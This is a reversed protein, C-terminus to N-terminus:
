YYYKVRIKCGYYKDNDGGYISFSQIEYKKKCNEKFKALAAADGNGIYMKGIFVQLTDDVIKLSIDAPKEQLKEKEKEKKLLEQIEPKSDGHVKFAFYDFTKTEGTSKLKPIEKVTEEKKKSFNFLGM